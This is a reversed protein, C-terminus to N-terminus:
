WVTWILIMTLKLFSNGVVSSNIRGSGGTNGTAQANATENNHSMNNSKSVTKDERRRYACENQEVDQLILKLSRLFEKESESLMLRWPQDDNPLNVIWQLILQMNNRSIRHIIYGIPEYMEVIVAKIRYIEDQTLIATSMLNINYSCRVMIDIGKLECKGNIFIFPAECKLLRVKGHNVEAAASIKGVGFKSKLHVNMVTGNLVDCLLMYSFQGFDEKAGKFMGDQCSQINRLNKCQMCHKNRVITFLTYQPNFEGGECDEIIKSDKCSKSCTSDIPTCDAPATGIAKPPRSTIDCPNSSIRGKLKYLSLLINNWTLGNNPLQKMRKCTVSVEWLAMEKVGNCLACFVNPYVIKTIHDTVPIIGEFGSNMYCKSMVSENRYSPKCTHKMFAFKESSIQMCSFDHSTLKFLEGNNRKYHQSFNGCESTIDSCCDGYVSCFEDCSCLSTNYSSVYNSREGCRQRCTNSVCTRYLSINTGCQGIDTTTTDASNGHTSNCESSNLYTSN